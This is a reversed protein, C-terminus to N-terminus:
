LEMGEEKCYKVLLKKGRNLQQRVTGEPRHLLLSANKISEEHILVLMLVESYHKPLRKIAHVLLNYNQCVTIQEFLDNSSAVNLLSIDLCADHRKKDPLLSLAANKASTLVYARIVKENEEPLYDIRQSIGLLANQVADEADQRNQLVQYAANLMQRGYMEFIRLMKNNRSHSDDTGKGNETLFGSYFPM